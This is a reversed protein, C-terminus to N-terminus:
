GGTEHEDLIPKEDEGLILIGNQKLLYKIAKDSNKIISAAFRNRESKLHKKCFPCKTRECASPSIRVAEEIDQWIKKLEDSCKWIVARVIFFYSLRRQTLDMRLRRLLLQWLHFLVM